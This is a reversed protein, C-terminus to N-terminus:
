RQLIPGSPHNSGHVQAHCNTCARNTMFFREDNGAVTQHRGQIHCSQCLRFNTTVLLKEHNSGHPAHCNMCSERVPAHEWLFPGRLEAHCKTCTEFVDHSALLSPGPSGHPSHCSTCDMKGERLPHRSRMVLGRKQDTHCTLCTETVTARVLPTDTVGHHAAHCSTCAVSASQHASGAWHMQTADKTHCELCVATTRAPDSDVGFGFIDSAVGDSEIHADGPGHCSDCGGGRAEQQLSRGFVKGHPSDPFGNVEDEHCDACASSSSHDLSASTKALVAPAHTEDALAPRCTAGGVAIVLTALWM